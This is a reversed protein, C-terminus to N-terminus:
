LTSHSVYKYDNSNWSNITNKNNRRKEMIEVKSINKNM